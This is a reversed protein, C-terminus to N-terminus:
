RRFALVNVGRVGFKIATKEKSTARFCDYRHTVKVESLGVNGLAEV